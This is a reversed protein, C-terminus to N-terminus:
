SLEVRKALDLRILKWESRYRTALLIVGLGLCLEDVGFDPIPLLKVALGIKFLWRVSKPLRPDTAAAKALLFVYKIRKRFTFTGVAGLVFLIAVIAIITFM